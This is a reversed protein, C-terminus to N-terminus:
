TISGTSSNSSQASNAGSLIPQEVDIQIKLNTNMGVRALRWGTSALVYATYEISYSDRQQRYYITNGRIYFLLIDNRSNADQRKDDLTIRPTVMDSALTTTTQSNTSTNFWWLKSVGAAVYAVTPRMNQDFALNVETIGTDSFLTTETTYPAVGVVVNNGVIRARWIAVNLGQSADNLAVGGSEYDIGSSPTSYNDPVLLAYNGATQTFSGSPVSM